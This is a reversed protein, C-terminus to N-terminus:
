RNENDIKKFLFTKSILDSMRSNAIRVNAVDDNHVGSRLVANCPRGAVFSYVTPRSYQRQMVCLDRQAICRRLRTACSTSYLCIEQTLAEEITSTYDAIYILLWCKSLTRWVSLAYLRARNDRICLGNWFPCRSLEASALMPVPLCRSIIPFLIAVRNPVIYESGKYKVRM